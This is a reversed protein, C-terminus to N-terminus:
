NRNLGIIFSQFAQSIEDPFPTGILVIKDRDHFQLEIAKFGTVIYFDIIYGRISMKSGIGIKKSIGTYPNCSKINTIKYKKQILGIGLKFSFYTNDITITINYFCLLGFLLILTIFFCKYFLENAQLFVLLAIVFLYMVFMFVMIPIGWYTYRKEIPSDM